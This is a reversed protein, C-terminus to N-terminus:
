ATAATKIMGTQRAYEFIGGADVVPGAQLRTLTLLLKSWCSLMCTKIFVFFMSVEGISKLAYQKGSAIDTLVDKELDVEVEQGACPQCPTVVAAKLFYSLPVLPSHEQQLPLGEIRYSDIRVQKCFTVCGRM